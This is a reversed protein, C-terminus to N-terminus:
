FANVVKKPFLKCFVAGFILGFAHGWFDSEFNLSEATKRTEFSLLLFIFVIMGIGLVYDKRTLGPTDLIYASALAFLGASAGASVVPESVLLM